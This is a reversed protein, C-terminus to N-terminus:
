KAQRVFEGVSDTLDRRQRVLHGSLGQGKHPVHRQKGFIYWFGPNTCNIYHARWRSKIIKDDLLSWVEPAPLKINVHVQRDRHHAKPLRGYVRSTRRSSFSPRQKGGWVCSRFVVSWHV